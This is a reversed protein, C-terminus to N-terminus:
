RSTFIFVFFTSIRFDIVKVKTQVGNVLIITTMLCLKGELWFFRSSTSSQLHSFMQFRRQDHNMATTFFYINDCFCSMLCAMHFFLTIVIGVHRVVVHFSASFSLELTEHL